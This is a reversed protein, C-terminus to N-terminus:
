NGKMKRRLTDLFSVKNLKVIKTKADAKYIRVRDGTKIVTTDAGDFTVIAEEIAHNKGEGIQIEIVDEPSLVISSKNLAHSCIPTVVILSATPEVIPGGASLNYATSGTPTSIIMGDAQYSNLLKGNVYIDFHLVRLGGNRNVVIDNLAVSKTGDELAGELMMRDEIEFNESCIQEMADEINSLEVETLYGLTGMNIGLIPINTNMLARALRILSGDGGIVLALDIDKKTYKSLTNLDSGKDHLICARGKDALIQSVKKTVSYDLDKTENTVILIKEM